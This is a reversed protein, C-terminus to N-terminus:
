NKNKNIKKEIYQKFLETNERTDRKRRCISSFKCELFEEAFSNLTHKNWNKLVFEKNGIIEIMKNIKKM